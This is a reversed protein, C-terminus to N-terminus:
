VFLNRHPHSTSLLDSGSSTQSAACSIHSFVGLIVSLSIISCNVMAKPSSAGLDVPVTLLRRLLCLHFFFVKAAAVLLCAFCLSLPFLFLFLLFLLARFLELIGDFVLLACFPFLEVANSAFFPIISSMRSLTTMSAFPRAVMM